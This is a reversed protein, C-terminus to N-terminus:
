AFAGTMMAYGINAVGHMLIAPVLSGIKVFLWGFILGPFFTLLSAANGLILMHSLAFVGASLLIAAREAVSAKM